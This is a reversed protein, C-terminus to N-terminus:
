KLKLIINLSNLHKIIPTFNLLFVNSTENLRISAQNIKPLIIKTRLISRLYM